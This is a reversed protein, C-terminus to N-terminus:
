GQEEYQITTTATTYKADANLTIQNNSADYSYNLNNIWYEKLKQTIIRPLKYFEPLVYNTILVEIEDELLPPSLLAHDDCNRKKVATVKISYSGVNTQGPLHLLQGEDGRNPVMKEEHMETSASLSTSIDVSTIGLDAVSGTPIIRNDDTFTKSYGMQGGYRPYDVQSSRPKISRTGGSLGLRTQVETYFNSVRNDIDAQLSNYQSFGEFEGSKGGYIHINGNETVEINKDNDLTSSMTYENIFSGSLNQNNTYTVDYNVIGAGSDYQKGISISRPNLLHFSTGMIDGFSAFGSFVKNCRAYSNDLEDNMGEIANYIYGSVPHEEMGKIEATERVTVNGQEDHALTHSFKSVHNKGSESSARTFHETFSYNLNILDYSESYTRRGSQNLFGSYENDVLGVDPTNKFIDRALQQASSRPDFGDKGSIFGLSVTHEYSYTNDDNTNFNFNESLNEIFEYDTKEISTKVGEYYTGGLDSLDGKEYIQITASYKSIRVQNATVEPASDFSLNTVRGKGYTIGNIVLNDFHYDHGNSIMTSIESITERVGKHDLNTARSDLYGEIGIEKTRNINFASDGLFNNQVNYSLVSANDFTLEGAM